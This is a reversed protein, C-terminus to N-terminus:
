VHTRKAVLIAEDALMVPIGDIVPYFLMGDERVLGAAVSDVVPKGSKYFLKGAAQGASMWQLLEPPAVSLKQRTEPCRLLETFESLPMLIEPGVFRDAGGM